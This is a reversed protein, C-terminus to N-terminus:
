GGTVRAAAATLNVLATQLGLNLRQLEEITLEAEAIANKMRHMSNDVTGARYKEPVNLQITYLYNKHGDILCAIREPLPKRKEQEEEIELPGGAWQDILLHSDLIECHLIKHDIALQNFKEEMFTTLNTVSKVMSCSPCGKEVVRIPKGLSFCKCQAIMAGCSCKVIEHTHESM